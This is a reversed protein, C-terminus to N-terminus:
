KMSEAAGHLAAQLDNETLVEGVKGFDGAITGVTIYWGGMSLCEEGTCESLPKGLPTPMTMLVVKCYKSLTGIAAAEGSAKLAEVKQASEERLKNARDIGEQRRKRYAEVDDQIRDATRDDPAKEKARSSATFKSNVPFDEDAGIATLNNSFWYDVIADFYSDSSKKLDRKFSSLLLERNGHSASKVSKLLLERPNRASFTQAKAGTRRESVTM